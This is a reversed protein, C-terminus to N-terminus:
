NFPRPNKKNEDDDWGDKNALSYIMGVAGIGLLAFGLPRIMSLNITLVIGIAILSLSLLWLSKSNRPKKSQYM